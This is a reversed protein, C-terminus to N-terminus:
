GPTRTPHSGKSEVSLGEEDVPVPVLKAGAAGLVAATPRYGPEEIWVADDPDILVRAAM